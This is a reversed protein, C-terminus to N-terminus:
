YLVVVFVLVGLSKELKLVTYRVTCCGLTCSYSVTCCGLTCTQILSFFDRSVVHMCTDLYLMDLDTSSLFLMCTNIYKHNHTDSLVVNWSEYLAIACHRMKICYCCSCHINTPVPRMCVSKYWRILIFCFYLIIFSM